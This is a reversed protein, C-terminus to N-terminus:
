ASKTKEGNANKLEKNTEEDDQFADASPKSGSDVVSVTKLDTLKAGVGLREARPAPEHTSPSTRTRPDGEKWGMGRLMAMGFGAVPVSEYDIKDDAGPEAALVQKAELKQSKLPIVMPGKATAGDKRERQQSKTTDTNNNTRHDEGLAVARRKQPQDGFSNGLLQKRRKQDAKAPASLSFSFGAGSSM